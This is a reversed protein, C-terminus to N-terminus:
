RGNATKPNWWLLNKRPNVQENQFQKFTIFQVHGGLAQIIAGSMHLKGVGENRDPFSSADNFAFAGIGGLTEDPEWQLYAMPTWVETVKASKGTQKPPFGGYSGYGNVAGNMIYSSMQNNRDKFYRSKGDLPCNYAKHNPMYDFYHGTKYQAVVNSRNQSPAKSGYPCIEGPLATYLWGKVGPENGWNPHPLYDRNDTAYMNQALSLQKNNNVCQTRTAKDKAKSLAPLLMAALIAIIAIVVLLEILTFARKRSPLPPNAKM